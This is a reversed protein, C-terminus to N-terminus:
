PFAGTRGVKPQTQYFLGSARACPRQRISQRVELASDSGKLTLVLKLAPLSLTQSMCPLSSSLSFYKQHMAALKLDINHQSICRVERRQRDPHKECFFHGCQRRFYVCRSLAAQCASLLEDQYSVIHCSMGNNFVKNREHCNRWLLAGLSHVPAIQHDQQDRHLRAQILIVTM